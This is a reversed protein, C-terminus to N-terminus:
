HHFVTLSPRSKKLEAVAAKTVKTGNLDLSQLSALGKVIELGADTVGTGSLDLSKLETLGKLCELPDSAISMAM